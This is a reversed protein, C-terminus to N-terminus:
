DYYTFRTYALTDFKVINDTSIEEATIGIATIEEITYETSYFAIYMDSVNSGNQKLLTSNYTFILEAINNNVTIYGTAGYVTFYEILDPDSLVFPTFYLYYIKSGDVVNKTNITVKLTESDDNFYCTDDNMEQLEVQISEQVSECKISVINDSTLNILPQSIILKKEDFSILNTETEPMQSNFGYPLAYDDPYEETDTNNSNDSDIIKEYYIEEYFDSFIIMSGNTFGDNKSSSAIEKDNFLNVDLNIGKLINNYFKMPISLYTTSDLFYNIYNEYLVVELYNSMNTCTNFTTIIPIVEQTCTLNIENNYYNLYTSFFQDFSADIVFYKDYLNIYLIDYNINCPRSSYNEGYLEISKLINFFRNTDYDNLYNYSIANFIPVLNYGNLVSSAEVRDIDEPYDNITGLVDVNINFILSNDITLFNEREFNNSLIRYPINDYTHIYNVYDVTCYYLKLNDINLNKLSITIESNSLYYLWTKSLSNINTSPYMNTYAVKNITVDNNVTNQINISFNDLLTTTSDFELSKFKVPHTISSDAIKSNDFNNILGAFTSKM